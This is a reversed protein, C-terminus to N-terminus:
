HLSVEALNLVSNVSSPQSSLAGSETQTSSEQTLLTSSSSRFQQNRVANTITTKAEYMSSKNRRSEAPLPNSEQAQKMSPMKPPAPVSWYSEDTKRSNKVYKVQAQMM